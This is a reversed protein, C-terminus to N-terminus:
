ATARAANRQACEPGAPKPRRAPVRPSRSRRGSPPTHPSVRFRPGSAQHCMEGFRVQPLRRPTRRRPMPRQTRPRGADVASAGGCDQRVSLGPYETSPRRPTQQSGWGFGSRCASDASAPARGTTGLQDRRISLLKAMRHEIHTRVLGAMLALSRRPGISGTYGRPRRAPRPPLRCRQRNVCEVHGPRGERSFTVTLGRHRPCGM